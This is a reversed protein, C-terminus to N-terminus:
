GRALAALRPLEVEAPGTIELIGPAGLPEPNIRIVLPCVAAALELHGYGVAGSVGVEVVADARPIETRAARIAEENPYEGFWVVDPRLRAGCEPCRPEEGPEERWETRWSCATCRARLLSGHQELVAGGGARQALGDVNSTIHVFSEALGEWEALACHGANPEARLVAGIRSGYWRWVRDPDEAFGEPTALRAADVGEYLGGAGRFTPIGSAASLGAGSLVVIRGRLAEM